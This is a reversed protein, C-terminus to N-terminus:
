AGHRASYQRVAAPAAALLADPDIDRTAAFFLVKLWGPGAIFAPYEGGRRAVWDPDLDVLVNATTGNVTIEGLDATTFKRGDPLIRTVWTAAPTTTNTTPEQSNATM